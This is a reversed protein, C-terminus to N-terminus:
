LREQMGGIEPEARIRQHICYISLARASGHEPVQMMVGILAGFELRFILIVDFNSMSCFKIDHDVFQRNMPIECM